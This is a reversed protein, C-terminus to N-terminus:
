SQFKNQANQQGKRVLSPRLYAWLCVIGMGSKAVSSLLAADVVILNLNQTFYCYRDAAGDIERFPASKAESESSSVECLSSSYSSKMKYGELLSIIQLPIM